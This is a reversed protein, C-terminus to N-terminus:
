PMMVKFEQAEYAETILTMERGEPMDEKLISYTVVATAYGPITAKQLPKDRRMDWIETDITLDFRSAYQGEDSVIRYIDAQQEKSSPNQYTVHIKYDEEGEEIVCDMIRYDTVNFINHVEDHYIVVMSYIVIALLIGSMVWHANRVVWHRSQSREPGSYDEKRKRIQEHEKLEDKSYHIDKPILFPM